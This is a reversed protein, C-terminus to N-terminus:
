KEKTKLSYGLAEVREKIEAFVKDGIQNMGQITESSIKLLGSLTRFGNSNLAKVVRSTFGMEDIKIDKPDKDKLDALVQAIDKSSEEKVEKVEKKEKSEKIEKVAKVEKVPQEEEIKPQGWPLLALVTETLKNSTKLAEYLADHPTVTGDTTVKLRLLNYDTRDGVRMNEVEFSVNLVPSFLADVGIVGIPLKGVKKQRDEVQSYGVEKELTIELSLSAKKDTLTAIHVEPNMLEVEADKKIDYGTVEKEGNVELYLVKPEASFSKFRLQKLNLMVELVNEYVGKLTTFEHPANNVKFYTIAAGEISSLLIRRLSNGLTIGYGPYLGAVEFVGEKSNESVVNFKNPLIIM